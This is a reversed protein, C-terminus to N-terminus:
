AKKGRAKKSLPPGDALSEADDGGAGTRKSLISQSGSSAAKSISASSSSSVKKSDSSSFSSSSALSLLMEDGCPTDRVTVVVDVHEFLRLTRDGLPSVLTHLEPDYTWHQLRVAGEIGYKPVLVQVGDRRVALVHAHCCEAPHNRFYVRTFLQVSSRGAHQAMRHCRNLGNSLRRVVSERSLGTPLPLINLSAALLRHVIVDAYRRIPSTFHTYVPAALGYHLYEDPSLSGSCFYVAQTMCRTTMIRLLTNFYENERMTATDLSACLEKSNSVNLSVGARGAAQVLQDFRSLPPAPHRRLLACNPFVRLIQQGVSVNALLMFEEVLSHTEVHDSLEVDIPDRTEEDTRFRIEPSALTLAGRRHRAEKLLDAARQLVRLSTAVEDTRSADDIVQQAAVYTYAHRSRIVSKAFRVALVEATDADLEWIVSFALRTVGGHLSCLDTGLLSPLMDIRRDCLYVSSGRAAAEQDMATDPKLYHTVDAIHVGVELRGSPLVRAHLADDIDTCGPPDISLVCLGRLDTRTELLEATVPVESPQFPPASSSASATSKHPPQPPKPPLCALVKKSFPEYRIGHQVLVALTETERDGVPGLDRVYHGCPLPSSRDWRDVRVVLVRGLLKAPSHVRVRIRPIHRDRSVFLLERPRDEQDEAEPATEKGTTRSASVSASVSVSAAKGITKKHKKLAQGSGSGDDFQQQTDAESPSDEPPLLCGTYPRWNRRLVAVVCGTPEPECYAGDADADESVEARQDLEAALANAPRLWQERPLVRVAVVDTDLARNLLRAGRVLLQEYQAESENMKEQNSAVKGLSLDGVTRPARLLRRSRTRLSSHVVVYGSFPDEDSSHYVGRVLSGDRFGAEVEEETLHEAPLQDAESRQASLLQAQLAGDIVVETEDSPLGVVDLLNPVEAQRSSAYEHVTQAFLGNQKAQQLEDASNSLILIRRPSEVQQQYWLAATRLARSLRKTESEGPIREVYTERHHENSFVYFFRTPEAEVLARLRTYVDRDQTQVADLVSQLLIVHRVSKHELLDVHDLAVQSDPLLYYAQTDSVADQLPDGLWVRVDSSSTSSSSLTLGSGIDDRLYHERVVTVLNGKRSRRVFARRRLM